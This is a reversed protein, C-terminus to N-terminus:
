SFYKQWETGHAANTMRQALELRMASNQDHLQAYFTAARTERLLWQRIQAPIIPEGTPVEVSFETIAGDHSPVFRPEPFHNSVAQELVGVGINAMFKRLKRGRLKPPLYDHLMVNSILAGTHSGDDAAYIEFLDYPQQGDSPYSLYDNAAIHVPENPIPM